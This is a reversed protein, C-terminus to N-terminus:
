YNTDLIEQMNTVEVSSLASAYDGNLRTEKMCVEPYGHVGQALCTKTLFVFGCTIEFIRKM